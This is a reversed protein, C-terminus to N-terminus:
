GPEIRWTALGREKMLFQLMRAILNQVIPYKIYENSLCLDQIKQIFDSFTQSESAIREVDDM